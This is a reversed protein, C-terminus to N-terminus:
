FPIEEEDILSETAPAEMEGFEVLNDSSTTKTSDSQNATSNSNGNPNYNNIEAYM